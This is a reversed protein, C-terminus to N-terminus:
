GIVFDSFVVTTGATVQAIVVAAGAGSGDADYFIFGRSQDYTIYDNADRPGTFLRFEDAELTAGIAGFISSSLEIKDVGAEFDTITDRNDSGTATSFVFADAGTGGTLIDREGRGDIRDAGQGGVITNAVTNGVLTDAGSGGTLNEISKFTDGAATGTNTAANSLSAVVGATDTAYSATDVGAGGFLRDAGIGGELMDDGDGGLVSDNGEGGDLMDNGLGGFLKDVGGFGSVSDNGAGGDLTNDGGTGALTDDTGATVDIVVNLAVDNVGDSVTFVGGGYSGVATPASFTLAAFDEATLTTGVTVITNGLYFRGGSVGTTLTYTLTDGEPDIVDTPPTLEARRLGAQISPTWVALGGGGGPAENVDNVSVTIWEEHELGGADTVT